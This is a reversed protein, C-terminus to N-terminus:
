RGLKELEKVWNQVYNFSTSRSSGKTSQLMIFRKGDPTIDFNTVPNNPLWMQSVDFLERPAGASFVQSTNISVAMMKNVNTVYFLEKGDPSWLPNGGGGVSVQWKGKLDPFSRVFIELTGTENSGYAIYKGNPSIVGAYSYPHPSILNTPATGKALDAIM